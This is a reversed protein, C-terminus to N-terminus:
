KLGLKIYMYDITSGMFLFLPLHFGFLLMIFVNLGLNFNQEQQQKMYYTNIYLCCTVFSFLNLVIYFFIFLGFIYGNSIIKINKTLFINICINIFLLFVIISIVITFIATNKIHPNVNSIYKKEFEKNDCSICLLICNVFTLITFLPIYIFFPISGINLKPVLEPM